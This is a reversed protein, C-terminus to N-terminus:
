HKARARGSTNGKPRPPAKYLNHRLADELDLEFCCDLEDCTCRDLYDMGNDFWEEPDTGLWLSAEYLTESDNVTSLHHFFAMADDIRKAESGETLACAYAPTFEPANPNLSMEPPPTDTIL